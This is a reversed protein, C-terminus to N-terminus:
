FSWKKSVDVYQGDPPGYGEVPPTLTPGHFVFGQMMHEDPKLAAAYLGPSLGQFIVWFLQFAM